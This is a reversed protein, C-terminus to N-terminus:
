QRSGYEIGDSGDSSSSGSLAGDTRSGMCSGDASDPRAAAVSESFFRGIVSRSVSDDMRNRCSMKNERESASHAATAAHRLPAIDDTRLTSRMRKQLGTGILLM